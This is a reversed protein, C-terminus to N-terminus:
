AASWDTDDDRSTDDGCARDFATDLLTDLVDDVRAGASLDALADLREPDLTGAWIGHERGLLGVALCSRRVPCRACGALPEALDEVPTADHPHWADPDKADRCVGQKQWGPEIRRGLAGAKSPHIRPSIAVLLLQGRLQRTM